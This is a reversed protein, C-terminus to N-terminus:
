NGGPAPLAASPLAPHASGPDPLCLQSCGPPEASCPQTRPAGACTGPVGPMRQWGGSSGSGRLGPGAWPSLSARASLVAPWRFVGLGKPGAPPARPVQQHSASAPSATPCHWPATCDGLGLHLCRALPTVSSGPRAAPTVDQGRQQRGLSPFAMGLAFLCRPQAFGAQCHSQAPIQTGDPRQKGTRQFGGQLSGGQAPWILGLLRARGPVRRAPLVTPGWLRITINSGPVPCHVACGLPSQSCKLGLGQWTELGLGTLM